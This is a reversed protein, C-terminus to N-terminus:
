FLESDDIVEEIVKKKRPQSTGKVKKPANPDKAVKAKSKLLEHAMKAVEELREASYADTITVDGSSLLGMIEQLALKVTPKKVKEPMVRSRILDNFKRANTSLGYNVKLGASVDVANFVKSANYVKSLLRKLNHDPSLPDYQEVLKLNEDSTFYFDFKDGLQYSTGKLAAILKRENKRESKVTKESITKRSAWPLMSKLGALSACTDLYADILTEKSLGVLSRICRAQYDKIGKEMKSSKLASGKLKIKGEPTLLIYNKAKLIVFRPFFGDDEFRIGDRMISNVERLQEKLYDPDSQPVVFSISDTDGNVVQFTKGEAWAISQNLINRGEETVRAAIQPANYNCGNAGTFGYISNVLAKFVADMAAYYENGTEKALKKYKLRETRFFKNMYVLMADPDKAADYLQFSDIISPYLSAVDIKFVNDYIGPHGFSIAGQYKVKETSKAIAQGTSLYYRLMIANLQSGSASLCMRELTFPIVQSSYFYADGVMDWIALTDLGDHEAYDKVQQWVDPESHRRDWYKWIQSADVMARNERELGAEKIVTKLSYRSFKKGIDWKQVVFFLDVLERGWVKPMRYNIQRSQDQRFKAEYLELQMETGDRGIRLSAGCKAACYLMYPIDFAFGNYTALISPNLERVWTCWADFFERQNAYDDLSFLKNILKDGKRYTNAILLVKAAENHHLGTTEIDFCLVSVDKRTTGKHYTEGSTLMFQEVISRPSWIEHKHERKFERWHKETGFRRVYKYPNNGEMQEFDGDIDREALVWPAYPEITCSVGTSTEQHIYIKGYKSTINVINQLNGSGYIKPDLM